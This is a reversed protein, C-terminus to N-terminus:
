DKGSGAICTTSAAMSIEIISDGSISAFLSRMTMLSTALSHSVRATWNCCSAMWDILLPPWTM